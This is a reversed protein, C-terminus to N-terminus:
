NIKSAIPLPVRFINMGLSFAKAAKAHPWVGLAYQSLHFLRWVSAAEKLVIVV